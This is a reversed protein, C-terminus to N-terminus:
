TVEVSVTLYRTILTTQLNVLDSLTCSVWSPLWKACRSV